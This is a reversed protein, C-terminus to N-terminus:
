KILMFPSLKESSDSLLVLLLLLLLLFILLVTTVVVTFCGAVSASMMLMINHTYLIIWFSAVQLWHWDCRVMWDILINVTALTRWRAPWKSVSRAGSQCADTVHHRGNGQLKSTSLKITTTIVSKLLLPSHTLLKRSASYLAM